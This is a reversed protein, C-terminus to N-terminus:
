ADGACAGAAADRTVVNQGEDLAARAGGRGGARWRLDRHGLGHRRFLGRSSGRRGGRDDPRGLTARRLGRRAHHPDRDMPRRQVDLQPRYGDPLAIADLLHAADPQSRHLVHEHRLADRRVDGRDGLDVELAHDLQPSFELDLERLLPDLQRVPREHVPGHDLREALVRNQVSRYVSRSDNIM